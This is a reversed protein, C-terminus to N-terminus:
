TKKRPLRDHPVPVESFAGAIEYAIQRFDEVPGLANRFQPFLESNDAYQLLGFVDRRDPSYVHIHAGTLRSTLKEWKDYHRLKARVGAAIKRDLVKETVTAPTNTVQWAGDSAPTLMLCGSDKYFREGEPTEVKWFMGNGNNGVPSIGTPTTRWAFQYSASRDDGILKIDGNAYYTVMPTSYLVCEYGRENSLKIMRVHEKRINQLPRWSTHKNRWPEAGAWHEQAQKFSRINAMGCLNMGFM